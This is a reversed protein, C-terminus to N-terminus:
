RVEFRESTTPSAPTPMTGSTARYRGPPVRAGPPGSGMCSENCAREDWEYTKVTYSEGPALDIPEPRLMMGNRPPGPPGWVENGADDLIRMSTDFGNYPWQIRCTAGTNTVAVTVTVVDGDGYVTDNTTVVTRLQDTTCDPPAPSATASPHRATTTVTTAPRKVTTTTARTTTPRRTSSPHDTTSDAPPLPGGPASTTTEGASSSTTTLKPSTTPDGAVVVGADDRGSVLAVGAVAALLLVAAAATLATAGRRRPTAVAAARLARDAAAPDDPVRDALRGLAAALAQDDRHEMTMRWM